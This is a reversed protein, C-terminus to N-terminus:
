ANARRKREAMIAQKIAEDYIALMELGRALAELSAVDDQSLHLYTTDAPLRNAFWTRECLGQVFIAQEALSKPQQNPM